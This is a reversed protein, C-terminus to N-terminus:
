HTVFPMKCGGDGCSQNILVDEVIEYLKESRAKTSSECGSRSCGLAQYRPENGGFSNLSLSGTSSNQTLPSFCCAVSLVASRQATEIEHAGRHDDRSILQARTHKRAVAKRYYIIGVFRRATVSKTVLGKSATPFHSPCTHIM